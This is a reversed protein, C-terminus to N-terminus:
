YLPLDPIKKKYNAYAERWSPSMAEEDVKESNDNDKFHGCYKCLMKLQSKLVDDNVESLNKLGINLGFIRDLSGGAGCPYYGHRTLGLGCITTIWCGKSFDANKYKKLDIPAINYSSFAHKNSRKESNRVFVWDPIKSLMELVKPGRGNTTLEIVCNPYREKYKKVIDLVQFFQPHLTPEGGILSIREWQWNLEFSEKVFKEIQALSMSERSPAQRVSRDCNFCALSCMTTIEIEVKRQNPIWPVFKQKIRMYVPAIINWLFGGEPILKKAIKKITRFM